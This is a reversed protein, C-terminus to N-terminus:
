YSRNTNESSIGTDNHNTVLTLISEKKIPFMGVFPPPYILQNIGFRAILCQGEM